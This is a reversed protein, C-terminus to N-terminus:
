DGALLAESLAEPRGHSIDVSLVKFPEGIKRMIDAFFLASGGHATGFEIVLSPKLDFPIEQYNWMDSVSKECDVGM